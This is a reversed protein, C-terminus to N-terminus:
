NESLVAFHDVPYSSDDNVALLSEWGDRPNGGAQSGLAHIAETRNRNGSEQRRKSDENIMADNGTINASERSM